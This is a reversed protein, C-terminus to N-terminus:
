APRKPIGYLYHDHEAAGDVPLRDLVEPPVDSMLEDIIEGIPRARNAAEQQAQGHERRRLLGLAEELVAAESPFRGSQVEERVFRLWDEALTVNMASVERTDPYCPLTPPGLAAPGESFQISVPKAGIERQGQWRKLNPEQGRQRRGADFEFVSGTLAEVSFGRRALAEM